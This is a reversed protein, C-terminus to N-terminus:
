TLFTRLIPFKPLISIDALGGKNHASGFRLVSKVADKIMNIAKLFLLLRLKTGLM